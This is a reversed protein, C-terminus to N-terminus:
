FDELEMQEQSHVDEVLQDQLIEQEEVEQHIQHEMVDDMVMDEPDEM